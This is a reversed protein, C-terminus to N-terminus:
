LQSIKILFKVSIKICYHSDFFAIKARSWNIWAMSDLKNSIIRFYKFETPTFTVPMKLSFVIRAFKFPRLGKSFNM